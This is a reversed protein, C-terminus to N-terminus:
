PYRCRRATSGSCWRRPWPRARVDVRQGPHPVPPEAVGDDVRADVVLRCTQEVLGQPETSEGVAQDHHLEVERRCILASGPRPAAQAARAAIPTPPVPRAATRGRRCDGPPRGGSLGRIAQGEFEGLRARMAGSATHRDAYVTIRVTGSTMGGVVRGGGAGCSWWTGGTGAARRRGARGSWRMSPAPSSSRTAGERTWATTGRRGRGSSRRACRARPGTAPSSGLGISEGSSGRSPARVDVAPRGGQGDLCRGRRLRIGSSACQRDAHGTEVRDRDLHADVTSTTASCTVNTSRSAM